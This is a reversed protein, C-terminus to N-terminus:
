GIMQSPLWLILQPFIGCLVLGVVILIVFPIVGKIIDGTTMGLEAPVAARTFFIAYAFPPTMFSMQLNVCIMMAFWLPDFGLAPVVPTVIPVIIFIIGMWDIFMGLIFCVFMIMLFAGWPGGPTALIFEKVVTGCGSNLFVGTFAFSAAAILLVASSLKLTDRATDRLVAFNLKRYALALLTAVLAGVAAAETPPAIGFFIVGLVSFVLVAPPVLSTVLMITKKVFPVQREEIPVTPALNPQLHCRVLVYVCYLASLVFGPIFAAMFLKGVSILAMPGYVVLMISPPILIGLTGGACVVGGALGKDYGRRLMAPIAVIALMTVSAGIIGVCAAMITGILVTTLALGGKLGGLWIYLADFLREAIGSKELMIGMFIFLPVALLSYNTVNGFIRLYLIDIVTPGFSLFGVILGISGIVLALPFGTLVGGLVGALMLVTIFEKSLDLM